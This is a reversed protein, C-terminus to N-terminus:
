GGGGDSAGDQADSEVSDGPADGSATDEAADGSADPQVGTDAGGDGSGADTGADTCSPDNPACDCPNASNCTTCRGAMCYASSTAQGAGACGHITGCHSCSEQASVADYHYQQYATRSVVDESPFTACPTSCPDGVGVILCDTAVMCTQDYDSGSITSGCGVLRTATAVVIVVSWHIRLRRM